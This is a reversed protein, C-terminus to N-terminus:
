KLVFPLFSVPRVSRERDAFTEVVNVTAPAPDTPSSALDYM